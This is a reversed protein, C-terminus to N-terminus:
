ITGHMETVVLLSCISQCIRNWCSTSVKRLFSSFKNFTLWLWVSCGQVLIVYASVLKTLIYIESGCELILGFQFKLYLTLIETSNYLLLSSSWPWYLDNIKDLYCNLSTILPQINVDSPHFLSFTFFKPLSIERFVLSTPPKLASEFAVTEIGFL